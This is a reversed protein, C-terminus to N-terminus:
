LQGTSTWEDPHLLRDPDLILTSGTTRRVLGRAFAAPLNLGFSPPPEVQHAAVHFVDGIGDVMVGMSMGHANLVILSLGRDDAAPPRGLKLRLDMIPVVNGWLNAVGLFFAPKGRLPLIEVGDFVDRVRAAEVGYHDEALAFALHKGARVQTAPAAPAEVTCIM